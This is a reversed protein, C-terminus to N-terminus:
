ILKVGLVKIWLLTYLIFFVVIGAIMVNQSLRTGATHSPKDLVPKTKQEEIKMPEIDTQSPNILITENAPATVSTDILNSPGAPIDFFPAKTDQNIDITDNVKPPTAAPKQSEDKPSDDSLKILKPPEATIVDNSAAKATVSPSPPTPTHEEKHNFGMIKEYAAKLKPDLKSLQHQDM